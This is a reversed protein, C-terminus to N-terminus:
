TFVSLCLMNISFCVLIVFVVFLYYKKNHSMPWILSCLEKLFTTSVSLVRCTPRQSVWSKNLLMQIFNLTVIFHQPPRRFLQSYLYYYGTSPVLYIALFLSPSKWLWLLLGHPLDILTGLVLYIALFISPSKWLWLSFYWPTSQDFVCYPSVRIVLSLELSAYSYWGLSNAM